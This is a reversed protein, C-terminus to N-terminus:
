QISLSMFKLWNLDKTFSHKGTIVFVSAQDSQTGNNVTAISIKYLQGPTLNYFTYQLIDDASDFYLLFDANFRLNTCSLILM